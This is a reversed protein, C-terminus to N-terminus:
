AAQHHLFIQCVFTTPLYCLLSLGIVYGMTVAIKAQSATNTNASSIAAHQAHIQRRHHRVLLCIKIYSAGIIICSAFWVIGAFTQGITFLVGGFCSCCGAVVWVFWILLATIFAKNNTVISSYRLPQFLAMCREGSVAAMLSVSNSCVFGVLTYATVFPCIRLFVDPKIMVAMLMPQVVAGILCDAVALAGVLINDPTHLYPTRMIAVMVLCNGVASIPSSVSSIALVLKSIYYFSHSDYLSPRRHQYSSVLCGLETSNM